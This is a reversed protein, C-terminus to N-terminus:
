ASSPSRGSACPTAPTPIYGRPFGRRSWWRICGTPQAPWISITPRWTPLSRAEVRVTITWASARGVRARRQCASAAECRWSRMALGTKWGRRWRFGRRFRLNTRKLRAERWNMPGFWIPPGWRGLNLIPVTGECNLVYTTLGIGIQSSNAPNIGEGVVALYLPGPTLFSQGVAPLLLYHENGAKQMRKGPFGIQGSDVAPIKGPVAVLMLEGSLSSLHIKLSPANSPIQIRYYAAERPALSNTVSAGSYALDTVPLCFGDGIGRSVLNYSLNTTAGNNYVGAYYTGPELPMGMGMALLRFNENVATASNPRLTWDSNAAWQYGTTWNTSNDPQTFGFNVLSNPLLDRRLVLRPTGNSVNALRLDWGLANAPVEFHFYRWTGIAQNTVGQNGCDFVVDSYSLASIRLTYSANPFVGAGTSRAKVIVSYTGAPPNALTLLSSAAGANTTVIGVVYGGENGYPENAVAPYASGPEPLEAGNRVVVVPNGVRNDLHVELSSIGPPVSFQFGRSQGGDQNTVSYTLDVAPAVAGLNTVPMSGLSRITFSSNGTGIRAANTANLGESVVALYYTGGPLATQPPNNTPLLVYQEDGIKQMSKGAIAPQGTDVNPISNSIIVLMVEGANTSVQVQWSPAGPPVNVRFYAAERPALGPHTSIGGDFALDVVPITFGPGIGRSLVSYSTDASALPTDNLVGIIYRGPELPRGMGMALTRGIEQSGGPSASRRTWDDRAAWQFGSPWSTANGPLPSFITLWSGPLFDRSIVMHPVGTGTVDKVRFDWGLANTPVDVQWYRFTGWSQSPVAASGGDFPLPDVPVSHLRITYTANSYIGGSGRAKVVVTSFLGDCNACTILDPAAIGVAGGENGYSDPSVLLSGQGPDPISASSQVVMVPNGVRDELRLEFAVADPATSFTYAKVEGGELTDAHTLDAGGALLTGLDLIPLPGQSTFTFTSPTSGVRGTAPAFGESVVAVYYTGAPISAKGSPPLLVYHENDIKQMLKGYGLRGSDINPVHNTLVVLMVEGSTAQLRVKWSPTNTAIQVRYYAAERPNLTATAIGGNYEVDNIPITFGAGIGRSSVTYSMANSGGVDIVGVYYTGAELPQSMGMALLRGTEDIADASQARRTWDQDAKWQYGSPFTFSNGPTWSTNAATLNTWATPLQDRRVVLRPSGNTVESFRLDWGLATPPVNFQFFQWKGTPVNGRSQLGGDFGIPQATLPQTILTFPGLATNPNFVGVYWIDAQQAPRQLFDGASLVDYFGLSSNIGNNRANWLSPVANRRLGIRTGPAFNQLFLDWGLTGLQQNLDSIRFYRWGARNPDDNVTLSTFNIDTVVPTGSLLTFTHANTSYVTIFFTGDSLTPPVLSLSDTVTGPVESYADNNFENPIFNRRVAVNPNGNTVAVSIQWALQDLPVQVRYTTYPYGTVSLSTTSLFNIDTATHQRSDLNIIAGPAGSVGIFYLQGGVLYPPVVLMQGNQSLDATAAVPLSAKKVLISNTLGNLWLRWAVMNATTTTKFFRMGEAGVPLDGSGSSGNIAVTGLDLSFAEGTVLNWQSGPTARVMLFWEEGALFSSAPVVFGDSGVRESKFTATTSTPLVGKQLYVHAEGSIVNLATRWAGLATNQAVIKFYYDGGTANQNTYVQTGLHTTGPDWTLTVTSAFEVALTYRVQNTTSPLFVGIFYAGPTAEQNTFTLTDPNLALSRKLFNTSAPIQNTQLYLDPNIANNTSYLVVRWGALNTPVDVRFYQWSNSTILSDILAVMPKTAPRTAARLDLVNTAVTVTFNHALSNTPTRVRLVYNTVAFEPSELNIANTQGNALAIFDYSTDSPAVGRKLLLHSFSNTTGPVTIALNTAGPGITLPFDQFGGPTNVGTFTQAMANLGTLVALTLGLRLKTM